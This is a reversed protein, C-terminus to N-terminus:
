DIVVFRCPKQAKSDRERAFYIGASLKNDMEDCLNWLVEGSRDMELSAVKQGKLNYIDISGERKKQSKFTLAQGRRAPNPYVQLGREPNPVADDHVQSAIEVRYAYVKNNGILYLMNDHCFNMIGANDSSFTPFYFQHLSPFDETWWALIAIQDTLRVTMTTIEPSISAVCPYHQGFFLTYIPEPFLELPSYNCYMGCEEYATHVDLRLIKDDDFPTILPSSGYIGQPSGFYYYHIMGMDTYSCELNGSTYVMSSTLLYWRDHIMEPSKGFYKGMFNDTLVLDSSSQSIIFNGDGDFIYWVEESAGPMCVADKVYMFRDGPLVVIVQSQEYACQYASGQLLTQTSGDTFKYYVLSDALAIAMADSAVIDTLMHMNFYQPFSIENIIKYSLTHHDLIIVALGTSLEYVRYYKGFREVQYYRYQDIGQLNSVTGLNTVPTLTNSQALYQFGYVQLSATGITFRYFQLDGEPLQLVKDYQGAIALSDVPTVELHPTQAYLVNTYIFLFALGLALGLQKVARTGTKAKSAFM